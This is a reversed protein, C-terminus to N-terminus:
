RTSRRRAHTPLSGLTSAATPTGRVTGEAVSHPAVGAIVLRHVDLLRLTQEVSTRFMAINTPDDRYDARFAVRVHIIPM